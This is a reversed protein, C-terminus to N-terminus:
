LFLHFPNVIGSIFHFHVSQAYMNCFQHQRSYDQCCPTACIVVSDALQALLGCVILIQCYVEAVANNVVGYEHLGSGYGQEAVM